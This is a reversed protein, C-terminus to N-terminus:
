IGRCSMSRWGDSGWVWWAQRGTVLREDVRAGADVLRGALGQMHEGKSVYASPAVRESDREGCM